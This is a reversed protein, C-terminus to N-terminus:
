PEFRRLTVIHALERGADYSELLADDDFHTTFSTRFELMGLIFARITKM